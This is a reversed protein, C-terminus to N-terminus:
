HLLNVVLMLRLSLPIRQSRLSVQPGALFQMYFNYTIKCSYVNCCFCCQQNNYMEQCSLKTLVKTKKLLFLQFLFSYLIKELFMLHLDNVHEELPRGVTMVCVFILHKRM